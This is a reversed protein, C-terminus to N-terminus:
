ISFSILVLILVCVIYVVCLVKLLRELEVVNEASRIKSFSFVCVVGVFLYGFIRIRCWLVIVVALSIRIIM